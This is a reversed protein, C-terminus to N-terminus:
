KVFDLRSRKGTFIEKLCKDFYECGKQYREEWEESLRPHHIARYEMSQDIFFKYGVKDMRYNMEKESLAAYKDFEEDVGGVDLIAQRSVSTVCYEVDRPSVEYFTGFETKVRPDRWMCGEPKGNEVREYQHGIGSVLAKPNSQYHSWFKELTLPDFWLGDVISVILEGKAKRFAENWAGNLRYYDGERKPPDFLFTEKCGDEGQKVAWDRQFDRFTVSQPIVIIWEFDKFTQRSLCKRVIKILEPRVSPTIVSIKM